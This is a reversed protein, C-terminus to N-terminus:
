GTELYKSTLVDDLFLMMGLDRCDSCDLSDPWEFFDPWEFCDFCEAAEVLSLPELLPVGRLEPVCLSILGKGSQSNQLPVPVARHGFSTSTVQVLQPPWAAHPFIRM